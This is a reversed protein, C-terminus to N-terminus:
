LRLPAHKLRLQLEKLVRLRLLLRLPVHLDRCYTTSACSHSRRCECDSYFASPRTFTEATRAQPAATAEGVNATPTFSRRYTNFAPLLHRLTNTLPTFCINCLVHQPRPAPSASRLLSCSPRGLVGFQSPCLSPRKSRAGTCAFCDRRTSANVTITIVLACVSILDGVM